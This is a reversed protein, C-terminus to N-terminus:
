RRTGQAAAAAKAAKDRKLKKGCATCTPRTYFQPAGCNKNPCRVTLSSGCAQCRDLTPTPRTCAPCAILLARGCGACVGQGIAFERACDPCRPGWPATSGCHVCLRADRDILQGCARCPQQYSAM